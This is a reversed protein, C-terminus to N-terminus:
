VPLSSKKIKKQIKTKHSVQLEGGVMQEVYVHVKHDDAACALM